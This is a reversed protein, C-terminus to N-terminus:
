RQEPFPMFSLSRKARDKDSVSVSIKRRKVVVEKIKEKKFPDGIKILEQVHNKVNPMEANLRQKIVSDVLRKGAQDLILKRSSDSNQSNYM